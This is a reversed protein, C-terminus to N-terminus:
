VPMPLLQSNLKTSLYLILDYWTPQGVLSATLVLQIALITWKSGALRVRLLKYLIAIHRVQLIAFSWGLLELEGGGV